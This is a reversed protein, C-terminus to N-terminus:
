IVLTCLYILILFLPMNTKKLIIKINEKSITKYNINNINKYLPNGIIILIMGYILNKFNSLRTANYILNVFTLIKVITLAISKGFVVPLTKINNIKDGEYDSIDM